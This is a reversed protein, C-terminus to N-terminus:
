PRGKHHSRPSERGKPAPAGPVGHWSLARKIPSEGQISCSRHWTASAWETHSVPGACGVLRENQSDSSLKGSPLVPSLLHRWRLWGHTTSYRSSMQEVPALLQLRAFRERCRSRRLILYNRENRSYRVACAEKIAVNYLRLHGLSSGSGAPLLEPM